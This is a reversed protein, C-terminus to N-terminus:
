RWDVVAWSHQLALAHLQDDPNVAIAHDVYELLFQDNISDSYGWSEDVTLGNHDLWQKLRILKGERYSPVGAVEGTFGVQDATREAVTAIVHDATIGFAAFIPVTIFDSTATIGVVVHGQAQHAAIAERGKARMAPTIVEHMFQQHLQQLVAPSKDVLFEFVFRHYAFPDLRQAQYDAYFQDNIRRHEVADVLGHTVLFEGWAHDSDISLLTHDLDFLALKM